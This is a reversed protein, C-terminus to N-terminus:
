ATRRTGPEVRRNWTQPLLLPQINYLHYYRNSLFARGDAGIDRELFPHHVTRNRGAHGPYRNPTIAKKGSAPLHNGFSRIHSWYQIHEFRRHKRECYRRTGQAHREPKSGTAKLALASSGQVLWGAGIYLAVLSLILLTLSTIM